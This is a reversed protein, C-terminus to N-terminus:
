KAAMLSTRIARSEEGNFSQLYIPGGALSARMIGSPSHRNERLVLHGVEHAIVDGLALATPPGPMAAIRDYFIYARGSPMHAAGLLDATKEGVSNEKPRRDRPLLLVTVHLRGNEFRSVAEWSEEWIARVGIVKYVGAVRAKAVDLIKPSLGAYNAIHMVITPEPQETPAIEDNGSVRGALALAMFTVLAAAQPMRKAM